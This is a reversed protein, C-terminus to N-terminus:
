RADIIARSRAAADSVKNWDGDQLWSRPVMWSGGICAVNPQALYGAADSEGIGGTPCFMLEPLPGHLAKLMTTGGVAAAPFLKAVQFGHEALTLLESPTAAGPVVPLACAALARIMSPSAGPTVLFDAGAQEAAAIHDPTLVTGAGVVLAPYEHKLMALAALAIPTRLTLEISHLGGRQLAEAVARAQDLSDVTVIPLIGADRLLCLASQQRAALSSDKSM